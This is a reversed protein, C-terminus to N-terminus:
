GIRRTQRNELAGRALGGKGDGTEVTKGPSDGHVPSPVYLTVTVPNEAPRLLDTVRATVTVDGGGGGSKM